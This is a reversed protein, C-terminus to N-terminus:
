KLVLCLKTDKVDQRSKLYDLASLADTQVNERTAKGESFGFGSYDFMFIQFGNKLLPSILQYQNLLFGANGHFHLLTITATKNKPKLLWGNLNNGNASKFVVSEITFGLDITDRGSKTFTPQHNEPSFFIVTTDKPGKFTMKKATPPAKDPSLFVKNFSCSTLLLTVTTSLLFIKKTM